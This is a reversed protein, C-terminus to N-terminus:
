FIRSWCICEYTGTETHQNRKFRTVVRTSFYARLRDLYPGNKHWIEDYVATYTSIVVLFVTIRLWRGPFHPFSWSDTILTQKFRQLVLKDSQIVKSEWHFSRHFRDWHFLYVYRNYLADIGFTRDFSFNEYYALINKLITVFTKKTTISFSQRVSRNRSYLKSSSSSIDIISGYAFIKRNAWQNIRSEKLSDSYRIAVSLAASRKPNMENFHLFIKKKFM